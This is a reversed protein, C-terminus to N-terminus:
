GDFSGKVSKRVLSLVNCNDQDILMYAPCFEGEWMAEAGGTEYAFQCTREQRQGSRLFSELGLPRRCLQRGRRARFVM